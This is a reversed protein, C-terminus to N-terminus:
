FGKPSVEHYRRRSTDLFIEKTSFYDLSHFLLNCDLLRRPINVLNARM